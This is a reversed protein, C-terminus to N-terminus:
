EPKQIVAATAIHSPFFMMRGTTDFVKHVVRSRWHKSESPSPKPYAYSLSGDKNTTTNGKVSGKGVYEFYDGLLKLGRRKCYQEYFNPNIRWCDYPYDHLPWVTPTVNICYGGPKLITFLNDLVRIPDFTHELVNMIIISSFQGVEGFQRRFVDNDDEFDVVFDVDEGSIMDTGYYKIGASLIHKKNNAGELGVGLELCPSQILGAEIARKVYLVDEPVM